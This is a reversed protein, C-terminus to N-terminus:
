KNKGNSSRTVRKERQELPEQQQHEIEFIDAQVQDDMLDVRSQTLTKGLRSSTGPEPSSDRTSGRSSSSSM